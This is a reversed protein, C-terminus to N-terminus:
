TKQKKKMKENAKYFCGTKSGPLENKKNQTTVQHFQNMFAPEHARYIRNKTTHYILTQKTLLNPKYATKLLYDPNKNQCLVSLFM